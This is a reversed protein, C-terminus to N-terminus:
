SKPVWEYFLAKEERLSIKILRKAGYLDLWRIVNLDQENHKEIEKWKRQEYLDKVARGGISCPPPKLNFSDAVQVVNELKLGKFLNRNATLLQQFYDITFCDNWMKSLVEQKGLSYQLSKCLL